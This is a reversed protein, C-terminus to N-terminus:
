RSKKAKADEVGRVKTDNYLFVFFGNKGFSVLMVSKKQFSHAM